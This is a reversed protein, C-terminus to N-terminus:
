RIPLKRWVRRSKQAEPVPNRWRLGRTFPSIRAPAWNARWNFSDGNSRVFGQMGSREISDAMQPELSRRRLGDGVVVAAPILRRRHGEVPGTAPEICDTHLM